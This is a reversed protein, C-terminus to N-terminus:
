PAIKPKQFWGARIQPLGVQARLANLSGFRRYIIAPDPLLHSSRFDSAFPMRKEKAIFTHISQIIKEDTWQVPTRFKRRYMDVEHLPKALLASKAENWTPFWTRLTQFFSKCMEVRVEHPPVGHEHAIQELRAKLQAPCTGHKNRHAYSRRNRKHSESNQLRNNKELPTTTGNTMIWKYGKSNMVHDRRRAVTNPASLRTHM